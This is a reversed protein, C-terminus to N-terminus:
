SNRFDCKLFSLFGYTNIPKKYTKIIKKGSDNKSFNKTALLDLNKEIYGYNGIGIKKVNLVEWVRLYNRIDVLGKVRLQEIVYCNFFINLSPNM